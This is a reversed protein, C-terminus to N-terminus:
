LKFFDSVKRGMRGKIFSVYRNNEPQVRWDTLDIRAALQMKALDLHESISLELQNDVHVHQKTNLLAVMLYETALFEYQCFVLFGTEVMQMEAM